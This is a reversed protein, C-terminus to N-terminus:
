CTLSSLCKCFLNPQLVWDLPSWTLIQLDFIKLFTNSNCSAANFDSTQTTETKTDSPTHPKDPTNYSGAWNMLKDSIGSRIHCLTGMSRLGISMSNCNAQGWQGPGSMLWNQQAANDGSGYWVWRLERSGECLGRKENTSAAWHHGRMPQKECGSLRQHAVRWM